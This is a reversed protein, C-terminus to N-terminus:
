EGGEDDDDDDCDDSSQLKITESKKLKDINSSDLEAQLAYGSVVLLLSLAIIIYEKKM